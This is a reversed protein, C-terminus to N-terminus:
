GHSQERALVGLDPADTFLGDIGTGFLQRAYDLVRGWAAPDDGLRFEEPLFQNEPRLTYPVVQLGAAHADAVLGTTVQALSPGIQDVHRALDCLASPTLLDAYQRPDGAAVLDAPAGEASTLFVTPTRLGYTTRLTVLNTLEFSQVVVPAAASNLRHEDLADVVAAEVDFGLSRFYTSHKIEPVIGITRGLEKSLRRRTQLAERFTPVPWLGDFVTNHPRLEPLREVARLTRLEAYTFDETFWGTYEVGDITKTTRRGAFGPRDAVDTTGSIEPEHRCVLVGDKTPVLDPEIVDAGLRAALEWSAVTHEPRYACAGRHGVVFPTPWGHGPAASAAGATLPVAALGGLVATATLLTRRSPRLDASSETM